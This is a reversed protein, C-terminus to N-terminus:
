PMIVGAYDVACGTTFVPLNPQDERLQRVERRTLRRRKHLASQGYEVWENEHDGVGFLIQDLKALAFRRDIDSWTSLPRPGVLKYWLAISAHWVPLGGFNEM